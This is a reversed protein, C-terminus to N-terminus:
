ISKIIGETWGSIQRALMSSSRIRIRLFSNIKSNKNDNEHKQNNENNQSNQNNKAKFRKNINQFYIHNVFREKSFGTQDSWYRIIRKLTEETMQKKKKIFIDFTIEEGKISGVEQLWHLFFNIEDPNSSSFMVGNKFDNKNKKLWYLIVGMLWLERKSIQGVDKASSNKIEEAQREISLVRKESNARAIKQRKDKLKQIQYDTLKVGKLWFSLTSKPIKIRENIESYSFGKKRLEIAKNKKFKQLSQVVNKM